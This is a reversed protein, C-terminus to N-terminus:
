FYGVPWNKGRSIKMQLTIKVTVIQRTVDSVSQGRYYKEYNGDIDQAHFIVAGM